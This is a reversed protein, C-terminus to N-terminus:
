KIKIPIGDLKINDALFLPTPSHLTPLPKSLLCFRNLTIFTIQQFDRVLNQQVHNEDTCFFFFTKDIMRNKQQNIRLTEKRYVNLKANMSM